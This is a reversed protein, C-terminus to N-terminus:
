RRNSAPICFKTIAFRVQYFDFPSVMAKDLWVANGASKGFKEGTATTVLPITLGFADAKQNGDGGKEVVDKKRILDIGATINGWQDSGGIQITCNQTKNLHYFDYAQLLQYTFETFSIGEPSDM